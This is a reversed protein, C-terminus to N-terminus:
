KEDEYKRDSEILKKLEENAIVDEIYAWYPIKNTKFALAKGEYTGNLVWQDGALHGFSLVSGYLFVPRFNHPLEDKTKHWKAKKVEETEGKKM